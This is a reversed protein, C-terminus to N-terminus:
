PAAVQGPPNPVERILRDAWIRLVIPWVCWVASWFIPGIIVGVSAFLNFMDVGGESGGTAGVRAFLSRQYASMMPGTVFLQLCLSLCVVALAFWVWTRAKRLSELRGRRVGFAFVLLVISCIAFPLTRAMDIVAMRQMFRRMEEMTADIGGAGTTSVGALFHGATISILGAGISYLFSALQACCLVIATTSLSEWSKPARGIGSGLTGPVAAASPLYYPEAGPPAGASPVFFPPPPQAM